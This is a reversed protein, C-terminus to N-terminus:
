CYFPQIWGYGTHKANWSIYKLRMGHSICSIFECCVNPFTKEFM